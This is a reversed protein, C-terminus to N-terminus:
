VVFCTGHGSIFMFATRPLFSRTLVSPCEGVVVGQGRVARVRGGVAMM